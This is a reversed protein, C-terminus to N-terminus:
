IFIEGEALIVGTGGVQITPAADKIELLSEIKSPRNMERGQIFTARDGSMMLGYLYLYYTLAGNSTGTAAEEPIGYLPAFNRCFATVGDPLDDASAQLGQGSLTFAHVGVVGYKDSLASLANEDPKIISLQSASSVPLIIDPLGTSIMAPFLSVRKGAPDTAYVPEVPIGMVGYLEELAEPTQIKGLDQPTAMDMMVLDASTTIRLEGALTRNSCIQGPKIIGKHSLVTFAAITAHGCLEVEDTPTFYRTHYIGDGLTRVFATESYRLEAATHLMVKELPFDAQDLLVVGAPNGGFLTDTFADVIYFKM